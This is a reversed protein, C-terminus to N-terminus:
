TTSPEVGEVLSFGEELLVSLFQGNGCGIEVLPKDRGAAKFFKLYRNKMGCAHAIRTLRSAVTMGINTKYDGYNSYNFGQGEM